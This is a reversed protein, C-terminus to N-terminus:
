IEREEWSRAFTRAARNLLIVALADPVNLQISTIGESVEGRSIIEM